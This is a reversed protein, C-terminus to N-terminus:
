NKSAQYADLRADMIRFWVSPVLAALVMSAYSLPLQPAIPSDRLALYERSPFSHHDAHRQVNFLIAKIFWTNCNWSHIQSVPEFEGQANQKRRLGYHEIYNILELKFIAALSAIYFGGVAQWGALWYLLGAIALSVANWHWFESYFWPLNQQKLRKQELRYGGVINGILSQIAFSYITQGRRASAPDKATGVWRHHGRIHEIKFPGYNVAAMLVGGAARHFRNSRHIMEHAPNIGSIGGAIGLGIVCALWIFGSLSQTLWLTTFLTLLWAPLCLMPLDFVSNAALHDIDSQRNLQPQFKPKVAIDILPIALYVVLFPLVSLFPKGSVAAWTGLIPLAFVAFAFYFRTISFRQSSLDHSPARSRRELTFPTM